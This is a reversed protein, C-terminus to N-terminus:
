DNTMDWISLMDLFCMCYAKNDIEVKYGHMSDSLLVDIETDTAEVGFLPFITKLIKRVETNESIDYINFFIQEDTENRMLYCTDNKDVIIVDEPEEGISKECIYSDFGNEKLVKVIDDYSTEALLYRMPIDTKSEDDLNSCGNLSGICIVCTLVVCLVKVFKKM